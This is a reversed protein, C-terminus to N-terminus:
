RAGGSMLEAQHQEMTQMGQNRGTAIANRLLHTRGDRIMSRIGDTVVLIEVLPRRGGGSEPILRQCVVAHLSAALQGRIPAREGEGFADVIRDITQVSDGTHLTTVVLHGTEAATLAARITEPERMEGVVIIDPDSRLAGMVAGAYSIAHAGIERQTFISRRNEHIYEIPDEITTIRRASSRNIEQLFAALSTSKGCGTPGGFVILGHMAGTLTTIFSPLKLDELTPITPHLLRVALAIGDNTALGHARVTLGSNDTWTTSVDAGSKIRALQGESFLTLAILAIEAAPLPAGPLLAIEGDVRVAAQMNPVLHVDSAGQRRAAYLVDTLRIDQLATM